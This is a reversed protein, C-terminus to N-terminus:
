RPKGRRTHFVLWMTQAGSQQIRYRLQQRGEHHRPAPSEHQLRNFTDLYGGEIKGVRQPAMAPQQRLVLSLVMAHDAINPDEIWRALGVEFERSDGEDQQLARLSGFSVPPRQKHDGGVKGSLRDLIGQLEPRRMEVKPAVDFKCRVILNKLLQELRVARKAPVPGPNVYDQQLQLPPSSGFPARHRIQVFRRRLSAEPLALSANQRIAELDDM